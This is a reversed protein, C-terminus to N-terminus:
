KERMEQLEEWMDESESDDSSLYRFNRSYSLWMHNLASNYTPSGAGGEWLGRGESDVAIVSLGSDASMGMLSLSCMRRRRRRRVTQQEEKEEQEEDEEKEGEQEEDEEGVEEEDEEGEEEKKQEEEDEGQEEEEEEQQQEKTGAWEVQVERDEGMTLHQHSPSLTLSTNLSTESEWQEQEETSSKSTTTSGVSMPRVPNSGQGGPEATM